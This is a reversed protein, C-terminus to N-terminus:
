QEYRSNTATLLGMEMGDLDEALAEFNDVIANATVRDSMILVVYHDTYAVRVAESGVCLWKNPDANSVVQKALEAGNGQAAHIVVMSHPTINVLADAAAASLSDDYPVFAYFEFNTEDLKVTEYPPVDVQDYLAEVISELPRSLSGDSGNDKACGMFLVATMVVGLLAPILMTNMKKM